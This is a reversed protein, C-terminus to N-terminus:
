HVRQVSRVIRARVTGARSAARPRYARIPHEPRMYESSRASAFREGWGTNGAAMDRSKQKRLPLAHNPFRFKM